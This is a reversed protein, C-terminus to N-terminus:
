LGATLWGKVGSSDVPGTIAEWRPDGKVLLPLVLLPPPPPSITPPNTSSTWSLESNLSSTQVSRERTSQLGTQPPSGSTARSTMSAMRSTALASRWTWRCCTAYCTKWTLASTPPSAFRCCLVFCWCGAYCREVQLSDRMLPMTDLTTGEQKPQVRMYLNLLKPQLVDALVSM